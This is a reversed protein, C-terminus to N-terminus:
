LSTRGVRKFRATRRKKVKTNLLYTQDGFLIRPGPEGLLRDGVYMFVSGRLLPKWSSRPWAETLMRADLCTVEYLKGPILKM